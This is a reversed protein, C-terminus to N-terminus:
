LSVLGDAMFLMILTDKGNLPEYVNMEGPMKMTFMVTQLRTEDRVCIIGTPM